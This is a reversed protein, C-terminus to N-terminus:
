PAGRARIARAAQAPNPSLLVIAACAEREALVAADREAEAREARAREALAWRRFPGAANVRSAEEWETSDPWFLWAHAIGVADITVARFVDGDLERWVEGPLAPPESRPEREDPSTM